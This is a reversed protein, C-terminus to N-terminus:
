GKIEYRAKLSSEVHPPVLGEVSGGYSAIEKIASSSMFMFEPRAMMFVTEIRPDLKQNLLAMQFELEFDSIARLGKVIIGAGGQRAFGVLLGDFAKVQVRPNDRVAETVLEVREAASFLTQKVPKSAVAVIVKEYIYASREIIDLHGLTVPDFTGPCVVTAMVLNM